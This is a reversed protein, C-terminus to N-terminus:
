SARWAQAAGLSATGADFASSHKWLAGRAQAKAVPHAIEQGVANGSTALQRAAAIHGRSVCKCCM